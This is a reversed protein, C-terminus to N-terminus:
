PGGGLPVGVVRELTAHASAAARQSHIAGTKAELFRRQAELLAILSVQGASYSETAFELNKEAQPLLAERYFAVTSLATKVTDMATRIDQYVAFELSEYFKLAQAYLYEARAIQAQNQDFIPLTATIGIGVVSDGDVAPREVSPGVSLEKLVNGSQLKIHSAAARLASQYAQLDLRSTEALLFLDDLVLATATPKPLPDSLVIAAAGDDISLFRMLRRKTERAEFQASRVALEARLVPDRALNEDFVSAVGAERLRRVADHSRTMSELNERALEHLQEAAVAEYYASRTDAVLTGALHAIRLVTEDLRHQSIEKRIPIRWFELINQIILAEIASRGGDVPFRVLMDLSPNPLLGSQVWDAKAVGITMFEAQLQRNNLLALQVAEELSLGNELYMAIDEDSLVDAGPDYSHAYGTSQEILEGARTFDPQPKVQTNCGSLAILGCLCVVRRTLQLDFQNMKTMEPTDRFPKPRPGYM